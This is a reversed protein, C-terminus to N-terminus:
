GNANVLEKMLAPYDETRQDFDSLKKCGFKKFIEALVDQKGAKSLKLAVARIDSKSIPKESMEPTPDEAKPQEVPAESPSDFLSIQEYTENAAPLLAKVKELNKATLDMTITIKM